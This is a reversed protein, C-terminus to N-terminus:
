QGEGAPRPNPTSRAESGRLAREWAQRDKVAPHETWVPEWLTTVDSGELEDLTLESLEPLDGSAMARGRAVLTRAVRESPPWYWAKCRIRPLRIRGLSATVTAPRSELFAELDSETAFTVVPYSKQATDFTARMRFREVGKDTADVLAYREAQGPVTVAYGIVEVVATISVPQGEAGALSGWSSPVALRLEHQGLVSPPEGDMWRWWVLDFVSGCVRGAEDCFWLLRWNDRDPPLHSEVKISVLNLLLYVVSQLADEVAASLRDANLGELILPKIGAQIARAVAGSTYGSASVYIGLEPSIGVDLLKGVFADIREPGIPGAENKCEIAM